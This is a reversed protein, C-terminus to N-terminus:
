RKIFKTIKSRGNVKIKLIYLGTKLTSVDIQRESESLSVIQGLLNYVETQFKESSIEINLIDNAPVPYILVNSILENDAVSLLECNEPIPNAEIPAGPTLDRGDFAAYDPAYRRGRFFRSNINGPPDGQSLITGDILVPSIYEWVKENAMNVEFLQGIPGNDILVNGNELQYASSLFGAFFDTPNTPDQYRLFANEPEYSTGPTYNYVGNPDAPPLTLIEITTFGRNLGNNFIMIDGADPFGQEIWHVSHQGFLKQDAPAGLNYAQPNGWRYLFDGGFGSTGGTHGAAEATTTSHDIIYFEGMLRSNFIIQDLAENYHMANGHLWNASGDGAGLFNIDLLQPNDEITGFNDVLNDFDQILHDWINWEWVITADDTGVPQFEIIKETYLEGDLLNAPNRGALIAQANSMREAVIMLVNGNPLPYYDHHFSFDTDSFTFGWILNGDWDYHELRGTNGPLNLTSNNDFSARFLSGDEMLLDAGQGKFNSSWTNIIEGCNNILYTINPIPNSNPTILTFGHFSEATNLVTGVTNQATSYLTAVLAVLFLIKKLM